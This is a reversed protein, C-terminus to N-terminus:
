FRAGNSWLRRIFILLSTICARLFITIVLKKLFPGISTLEQEFFSVVHVKKRMRIFDEAIEFLVESDKQLVEILAWLSIVPSFMSVINVALKRMVSLSSSKHPTGKM